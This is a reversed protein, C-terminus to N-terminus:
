LVNILICELDIDRERERERGSVRGGERERERQDTELVTRTTASRITRNIFTGRLACLVRQEKLRCMVRAEVVGTQDEVM